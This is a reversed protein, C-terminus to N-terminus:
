LDDYEKIFAFEFYYIGYNDEMAGNRCSINGNAISNTLFFLKAVIDAFSKREEIKRM